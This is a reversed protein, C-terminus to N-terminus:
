HLLQVSGPEAAAYSCGDIAPLDWLRAALCPHRHRKQWKVAICISSASCCGLLMVKITREVTIADGYERHKYADEGTNWITVQVKCEHCGTRVFGKMNDGRGTDKAKVGLCSQIAQLVASKGSGNSGSIVNVHTGLDIAFNQHCMFDQVQVSKIHGALGQQRVTVVENIGERLILEAAANSMEEFDEQLRQQEPDDADDEAAAEMGGAAAAADNREHSAEPSAVARHRQQQRSNNRTGSDPVQQKSKGRRSGSKVAGPAEYDEDASDPIEETGHADEMESDAVEHQQQQKRRRKSSPAPQEAAAPSGEAAAPPVASAGPTADATKRKKSNWKASNAMLRALEKWFVHESDGDDYEIKYFIGEEEIGEANEVVDDIDSVTGHYYQKTEPFWKWLETGVYKRAEEVSTPEELKPAM